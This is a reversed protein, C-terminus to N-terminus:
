KLMGFSVQVVEDNLLENVWSGSQLAGPNLHQSVEGLKFIGFSM